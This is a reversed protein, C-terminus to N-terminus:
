LEFTLTVSDFTLTTVYRLTDVIFVSYPLLQGVENKTCEFTTINVMQQRIPPKLLGRETKSNKVLLKKRKFSHEASKYTGLCISFVCKTSFQM